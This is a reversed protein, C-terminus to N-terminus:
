AYIIDVDKSYVDDIAPIVEGLTKRAALFQKDDGFWIYCENGNWSLGTVDWYESKTILWNYIFQREEAIREDRLHCEYVDKYDRVFVYIANRTPKNSNNSYYLAMFEEETMRAEPTRETPLSEWDVLVSAKCLRVLHEMDQCEETTHEKYYGVSINTGEPVLSVFQASDTVIGTDDPKFKFNKENKNFQESLANAFSDSCCRGWLQHTIVSDTGRRDFSICRKINKYKFNSSLASSGICGCEEGLFFYYLGPVKNEIMYLIVTMGSKDDAGLITKGDTAIYKGYTRHRVSDQKSCATDLHCTFMTTPDPNGIILFYNGHDDKQYGEPLYNLLQTETRHPYTKRTLQLFKRKIRM